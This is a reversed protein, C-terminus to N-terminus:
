PAIVDIIKAPLESATVEHSLVIVSFRAVVVELQRSVLSKRKRTM